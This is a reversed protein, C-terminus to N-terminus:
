LRSIESARMPSPTAQTVSSNTDPTSSLNKERAQRAAGEALRQRSDDIEKRRAYLWDDQYQAARNLETRAASPKGAGIYDIAKYLSVFVRDLSGGDYEFSKDNTMMATAGSAGQSFIGKADHALFRAEAMDFASTAAPVDNQLYSGYASYLAALPADNGGKAAIEGMEQPLVAYNGAALNASYDRRADSFTRCGGLMLLASAVALLRFPNPKM